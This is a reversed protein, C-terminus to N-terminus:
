TPWSRSATQPPNMHYGLQAIVHASHLATLASFRALLSKLRPQATGAWGGPTASLTNPPSDVAAAAPADMPPVGLVATYVVGTQALAAETVLCVSYPTTWTPEPEPRGAGVSEFALDPAADGAAELCIRRHVVTQGLIRFYALLVLGFRYNRNIIHSVRFLYHFTHTRTLVNEQLVARICAIAAPGLHTPM